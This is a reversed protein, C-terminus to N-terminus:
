SGSALKSISREQITLAGPQGLDKWSEMAETTGWQNTKRKYKQQAYFVWFSGFPQKTCSVFDLISLFWLDHTYDFMYM